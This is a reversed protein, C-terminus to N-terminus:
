ATKKAMNEEYITYGPVQRLEAPLMTWYMDNGFGGGSIICRWQMKKMLMYAVREHNEDSNLEYAASVTVTNGDGDMAQYRSGKFNTPGHYRTRIAKM